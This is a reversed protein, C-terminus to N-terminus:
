ERPLRDPMQIRALAKIMFYFMAGAVALLAVNGIAQTIATAQVLGLSASILAFLLAVQFGLVAWYRARWMGWAMVAFLVVPVLVQFLPPREEGQAIGERSFVTVEAGAVYGVIASIAILAAIVAGVTVVTPREDERLPELAQRAAENRAEARAAMAERREAVQRRRESSREKRKRRRTRQRERRAM